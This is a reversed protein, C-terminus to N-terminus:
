KARSMTRIEPIPLSDATLRRSGVSTSAPPSTASSATQRAVRSTACPAISAMRQFGGIQARYAGAEDVRQIMERLKMVVQRANRRCDAVPLRRCTEFRSNLCQSPPQVGCLVGLRCSVRGDELGEFRGRFLEVFFALGTALLQEFINGQLACGRRRGAGTELCEHPCIKGKVVCPTQRFRQSDGGAFLELLRRARPGM